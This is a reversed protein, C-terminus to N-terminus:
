RLFLRTLRRLKMRKSSGCAECTLLCLAPRLRKGAPASAPRLHEDAWGLHYRLTGYFEELERSPAVFLSKCEEELAPLYRRIFPQMVM